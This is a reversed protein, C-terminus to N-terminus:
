YDLVKRPLVFKIAKLMAENPEIVAIEQGKETQYVIGYPKSEPMESDYHKMPVKRAFFNDFEHSTLPAMFEMKNLDIVTVRKRKQKSMVKDITIEKDLYLYEYEIDFRPVVFYALVAAAIGVLLPVVSSGSFVLGMFIGVAAVAYILYKLLILGFSTKHDVLCEVYTDNM